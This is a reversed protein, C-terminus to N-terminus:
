APRRNSDTATRRECEAAQQRGSSAGRTADVRAQLAITTAGPGGHILVVTPPQRADDAFDGYLAVIRDVHEAELTNQNRGQKFLPSGDVFLVKGRRDEAKRDRFVLICAPFQTGYFLNPALGIVAELRDSKTIAARIRAEAHGRTLAGQPLVVAVRGTRLAMSRLMHQLWAYDAYARPPVGAFNRGFRDSAWLDEGWSALSFPPNAIVCDFTALTDGDYFAPERLTDGRVIKFDEVGHLILNM